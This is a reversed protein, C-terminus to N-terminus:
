TRPPATPRPIPTIAAPPVNEAPAAPSYTSGPTPLNTGSISEATVTERTLAPVGSAHETSFDTVTHLMAVPTGTAAQLMVRDLQLGHVDFTMIPPRTDATMLELDTHDVRVRRAHRLYLGYAPLTGFM